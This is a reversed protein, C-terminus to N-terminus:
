KYVGISISKVKSNDDTTTITFKHNGVGKEYGYDFYFMVMYGEVLSYAEKANDYLEYVKEIPDGIKLGKSTQMIVIIKYDGHDQYSGGEKFDLASIGFNNNEKYGIGHKDLIEMVEKKSMDPRLIGKGDEAVLEALIEASTRKITTTVEIPKQSSVTLTDGEALTNQTKQTDDVKAVCSALAFILCIAIACILLKKM